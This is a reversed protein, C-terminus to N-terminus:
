SAHDCPEIPMKAVERPKALHKQLGEEREYTLKAIQLGNRHKSTIECGNRLECVMECGLISKAAWKAAALHTYPAEFHYAHALFHNWLQSVGQPIPSQSRFQSNKHKATTECNRFSPWQAAFHCEHALFPKAAVFIKVSSDILNRFLKAFSPWKPLSVNIGCRSRKPQLVTECCLALKASSERLSCFRVSGQKQGTKARKESWFVDKWNIQM